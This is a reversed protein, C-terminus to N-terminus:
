ATDVAMSSGQLGLIYSLRGATASLSNSIAYSADLRSRDGLKILQAYDNTTIGVFVGTRSGTLRDPRQGANELAEWSVELLLRQQPDMNVAERPAIGFFHADFQDVEELFAGYRTYMKGPADPDPDYHVNVDWRDSPVETIADMGDRLLRWFAEPSNAGGPFRCGMGIIAIPETRSREIADLKSQM